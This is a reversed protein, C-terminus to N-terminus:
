PCPTKCSSTNIDFVTSVNHQVTIESTNCKTATEPYGDTNETTTAGGTYDASADKYTAAIFKKRDCTVYLNYSGSPLNKINGTIGGATAAYPLQPNPNSSADPEPNFNGQSTPIAAYYHINVANDATGNIISISGVDISQYVRAALLIHGGLNFMDDDITNDNSTDIYDHNIRWDSPGIFTQFAASTITTGDAAYKITGTSHKMLINKLWVRVEITYSDRGGPITLNLDTRQLPFLELTKSSKSDAAKDAIVNYIAFIDRGNVNRNDFPSRFTRVLTGEKNFSKSSDTVLRRFFIAMHPYVGERVDTAPYNFGENFFQNYKSVSGQEDCTDLSKGDLAVTQSCLLQRSQGIYTYYDNPRQNSGIGKGSAIRLEAIDAYLNFNTRSLDSAEQDYSTGTVSVGTTAKIGALADSIYFQNNYWGHPSNTEYTGKLIINARTNILQGFVSENTCQQMTIIGILILFAYRKQNFKM